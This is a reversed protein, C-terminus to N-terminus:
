VSDIAFKWTPQAEHFIEVVQDAEIEHTRVALIEIGEFPEESHKFEDLTGDAEPRYVLVLYM